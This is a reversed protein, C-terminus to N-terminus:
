RNWKSIAVVGTTNVSSKPLGTAAIFDSRNPYLEVRVVGPVQGGLLPSIREQALTIAEAAEQVLIREIGPHHLVEVNGQRTVVLGEAAEVSALFLDHEREMWARLLEFDGAADVGMQLIVAPDEADAAPIPVGISRYRAIRGPSLDELPISLRPPLAPRLVEMDVASAQDLISGSLEAAREFDGQHFAVRAKLLTSTPDDGLSEAVDVACSLNVEKLCRFGKDVEAARAPPAVFLGVALAAFGLFSSVFSNKM